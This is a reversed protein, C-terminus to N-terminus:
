HPVLVLGEGLPPALPLEGWYTVVELLAEVLFAEGQFPTVVGQNEVVLFAEGQFAASAVVEELDVYGLKEVEM